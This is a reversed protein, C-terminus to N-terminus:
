RRSLSAAARPQLWVAASWLLTRSSCAALACWSWSSLRTSACFSASILTRCYQGKWVFCKCREGDTCTGICKEQKANKM